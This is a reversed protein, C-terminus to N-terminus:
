NFGCDLNNDNLKQKLLKTFEIAGKHNMHDDYYYAEDLMTNEGLFSFYTVNDFESELQSFFESTATSLKGKSGFNSISGPFYEPLYSPTVFILNIKNNNFISLKERMMQMTEDKMARMQRTDMKSLRNQVSIGARKALKKSNTSEDFFYNRFIYGNKTMETKNNGNDSIKSEVNLYIKRWLSEWKDARFLGSLKGRFYTFNSDNELINGNGWLYYYRYRAEPNRDLNSHLYFLPSINVIACKLQSESELVQSMKGFTEYIDESSSIFHFVNESDPLYISSSHSNGFIVSEIGDASALFDIRDASEQYLPSIRDSFYSLLLIFFCGTVLFIACRGIFSKFENNFVLIHLSRIGLSVM